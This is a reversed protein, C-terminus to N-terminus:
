IQCLPLPQNKRRFETWELSKIYHPVITYAKFAERDGRGILKLLANKIIKDNTTGEQIFMEIYKTEDYEAHVEGFAFVGNWKDYFTLDGNTNLVIADTKCLNTFTHWNM